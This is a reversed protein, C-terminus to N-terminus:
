TLNEIHNQLFKSGIPAQGLKRVIQFNTFETARKLFGTLSM